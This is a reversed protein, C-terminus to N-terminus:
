DVRGALAEAIQRAIGLAEDVPLPGRAIRPEEVTVFRQWDPSLDYNAVAGGIGSTV